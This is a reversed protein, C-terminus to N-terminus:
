KQLVLKRTEIYDNMKLRYLYIGGPLGSADWQVAHEGKELLDEVLTEIERGLLNYIIISVHGRYPITYRIMTVPNFPNPYNQRLVYGKGPVNLPIAPVDVTEIGNYKARASDMQAFFGERDGSSFCSVAEEQHFVAEDFLNKQIASLEQNLYLNYKRWVNRGLATAQLAISDEATIQYACEDREAHEYYLNFWTSTNDTGWYCMVGSYGSNNEEELHCALMVTHDEVRCPLYGVTSEARVWGYEPLYFEIIYHTFAVMLVRAPVGLVRLLAVALNAKGTCVAYGRQLTTLADQAGYPEYPLSDGTFAIVDNVFEVINNRGDAIEEAKAIIEPHDSQIYTSAQLYCNLSDDLLSLATTDVFAPMDSFDQNRKLTWCEWPIFISDGTKMDECTVEAVWNDGELHRTHYAVIKGQPITELLQFYIPTTERHIVPVHMSLTVTSVNSGAEISYAGKFYGLTLGNSLAQKREEGTMVLTNFHIPTSETGTGHVPAARKEEYQQARLSLCVLPFLLITWQKKM